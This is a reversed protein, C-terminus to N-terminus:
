HFKKNLKNVGNHESCQAQGLSWPLDSHLVSLHAAAAKSTPGQAPVSLWQRIKDLGRAVQSCTTKAPGWTQRSRVELDFNKTDSTM